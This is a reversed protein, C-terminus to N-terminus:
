AADTAEDDYSYTLPDDDSVDRPIRNVGIKNGVRVMTSCLLAHEAIDIEEGNALRAEMQEALCAAAAFRRVYQKRSESCRDEGGQDILIASVIDRFRRAIMSRGDAEALLVTADNSVRLRGYAKPDSARPLKRRVAPKGNTHATKRRRKYTDANPSFTTDYHPTLFDSRILGWCEALKRPRGIPRHGSDLAFRFHSSRARLSASSGLCVKVLV